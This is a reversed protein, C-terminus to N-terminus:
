RNNGRRWDTTTNPTEKEDSLLNSIREWEEGSMHNSEQFVILSQKENTPGAELLFCMITNHYAIKDKM